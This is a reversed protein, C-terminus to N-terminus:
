GLLEFPDASINIDCWSQYLGASLVKLCKEKAFQQIASIEDKKNIRGDYAYVLLYDYKMQRYKIEENFDYLFVPDVHYLPEKGTLEKVFEATNKDRVSFEEINSLLKSVKKELGLEIIREYTTYGCCAAYTIIKGANIETGLLNPSLGWKNQTCNFVEDSGIIVIDFQKNWNTDESIGLWELYINKFNRNRNKSFFYHRLRNFFYKDFKLLYNVRKKEVDQLVREGPKIDIFACSHGLAEINKKLSYAQLFSGYNHVRQMSIIGIKM